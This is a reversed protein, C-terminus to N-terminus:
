GPEGAAMVLKGEAHVALDRDVEDLQLLRGIGRLIAGDEGAVRRRARAHAMDLEPAAVLDQQAGAVGVTEGGGAGADQHLLRHQAVEADLLPLLDTKSPGHGDDRAKALSRMM